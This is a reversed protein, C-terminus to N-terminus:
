LITFVIKNLFLLELYMSFSLSLLSQKVHHIFNLFTFIGFCSQVHPHLHSIFFKTFPQTCITHTHTYFMCKYIRIGSCLHCTAVLNRVVCPGYAKLCKIRPLLKWLVFFAFFYSVLQKLQNHQPSGDM